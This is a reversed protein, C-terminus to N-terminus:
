YNGGGGPTSNGAGIASTQTNVVHGFVARPFVRDTLEQQVALMREGQIHLFHDLPKMMLSSGDGRFNRHVGVVPFAPLLQFSAPFFEAGQAGQM